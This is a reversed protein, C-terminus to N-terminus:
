KIQRVKFKALKIWQVIPIRSPCVYACAGCEICDAGNLRDFEMFKSNESLAALRTPMLYMPCHEICRACKICPFSDDVLKDNKGLVLIASTAKVVPVDLLSQSVGMMPGGMIIRTAADIMGGCQAIVDSFSTGIRVCLNKPEAIGPGTVTVIRKILPTGFKFAQAIAVCTGVNLVVIGVDLPLGRSPVERNILAKILMKEAGQPYKTELVVVELGDYMGEEPQTRIELKLKKIADRKNDEVGIIIRTAGVAKAALKAGLIIDKGSELMIRHDATIYPECECGNIIITDIKKDKPPSLKVATPFAAGGLGVIGAERVIKRIEEPAVESFSKVNAVGRASRQEEGRHSRTRSFPEKSPGFSANSRLCQVTQREIVVSLVDVGCPHPYTNIKTVKGSISAHVSASIFKDSNGILQGEYVEDGVKVLPDCSAGTHQHLPIIVRSPVSAEVIPKDETEKKSYPPHIGQSFTKM